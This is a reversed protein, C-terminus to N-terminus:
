ISIASIGSWFRALGRGVRGGVRGGRRALGAALATM